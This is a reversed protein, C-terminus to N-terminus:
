LSVVPRKGRYSERPSSGAEAFWLDFEFTAASGFGIGLCLMTLWLLIWLFYSGKPLCVGV